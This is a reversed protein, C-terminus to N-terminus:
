RRCKLESPGSQLTGEFIAPVRIAPAWVSAPPLVAMGITAIVAIAHKSAPHEIRFRRVALLAAGGLLLPRVLSAAGWGSFPATRVIGAGGPTLRFTQEALNRRRRGSKARPTHERVAKSVSIL